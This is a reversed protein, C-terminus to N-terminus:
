TLALCSTVHWDQTLVNYIINKQRTMELCHCVLESQIYPREHQTYNMQMKSQFLAFLYFTVNGRQFSALVARFISLALSYFLSM